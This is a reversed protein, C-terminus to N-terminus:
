RYTGLKVKIALFAFIAGLAAVLGFSLLIALPGSLIDALVVTTACFIVYLVLAKTAARYTASVFELGYHGQLMWGTTCLTTPFSLLIGSVAPGTMPAVVVIGAIFCGAVLGRIILFKWSAPSAVREVNISRSPRFIFALIAGVCVFLVAEIFSLDSMVIPGAMLLWFVLGIMLAVYFKGLTAARIFSMLYVLVAGGGALGYLAGKVIFENEQSLSILFLGPGINVPLAVLVSTVIPGTSWALRGTFIVIGATAIVKWVISWIAIIQPDLTM